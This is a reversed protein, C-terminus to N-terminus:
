EVMGDVTDAGLVSRKLLGCLTGMGSAEKQEMKDDAASEEPLEIAEEMGNNSTAERERRKVSALAEKDFLRLMPRGDAGCLARLQRYHVYVAYTFPQETNLIAELERQRDLVFRRLRIEHLRDATSENPHERRRAASTPRGRRRLAIEQAQALLLFSGPM